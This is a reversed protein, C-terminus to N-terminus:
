DASRDAEAVFRSLADDADLVAALADDLARAKGEAHERAKDLAVRAYNAATQAEERLRVLQAFHADYERTGPVRHDREYRAYAREQMAQFYAAVEPPMEPEDVEVTADNAAGTGGSLSM